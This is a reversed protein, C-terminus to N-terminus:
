KNNWCRTGECLLGCKVWVFLKEFDNVGSWINDAGNSICIRVILIIINVILAPQNFECNNTTGSVFLTIICQGTYMNHLVLLMKVKYDAMIIPWPLVCFHRRPATCDEGICVHVNVCSNLIRCCTEPFDQLLGIDLSTDALLSHNLEMRCEMRLM